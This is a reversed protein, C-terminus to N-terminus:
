GPSHGYRTGAVDQRPRHQSPRDSAGTPTERGRLGPRPQHKRRGHIWRREPRQRATLGGANLGNGLHIEPGWSQGGDESRRVRVRGWGWAALVTGDTAVVVNPLREDAFLQQMEFKPEGLFADIPGEVPKEAAALPMTLFAAALALGTRSLYRTKMTTKM